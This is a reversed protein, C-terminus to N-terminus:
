NAEQRRLVEVIVRFEEALFGRRMRLREGGAFEIEFDGCPQQRSPETGSLSVEVLNLERELSPTLAM